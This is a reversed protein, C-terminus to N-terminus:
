LTGDDILGYTIDVMEVYTGYISEVNKPNRYAQMMGSSLAGMGGRALLQPFVRAWFEEPPLAKTGKRTKTRRQPVKPSPDVAPPAAAAEVKAEPDAM